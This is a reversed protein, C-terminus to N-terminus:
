KRDLDDVVSELKSLAGRNALWSKDESVHWIDGAVRAVIALAVGAHMRVGEGVRGVSGALTQRAFASWGIGFPTYALRPLRSVARLGREWPHMCGQTEDSVHLSATTAWPAPHIAVSPQSQGTQKQKWGLRWILSRGVLPM